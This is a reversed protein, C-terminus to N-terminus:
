DVAPPLLLGVEPSKWPLKAVITKCQLLTPTFPYIRLVSNDCLNDNWQFKWNIDRTNGETDFSSVEISNRVVRAIFLSENHGVIGLNCTHPYREKRYFKRDLYLSTLKEWTTEGLGWVILEGRKVGHVLCLRGQWELLSCSYGLIGYPMPIIRFEENEMNFSLVNHEEMQYLINGVSLFRGPYVLGWLGPTVTKWVGTESSFMCLWRTMFVAHWCWVIVKFNYSIPDFYFGQIDYELTPIRPVVIHEQSIPNCVIVDKSDDDTGYCFMGQSCLFQKVGEQIRPLDIKRLPVKAHPVNAARLFFSGVSLSVIAFTESPMKLSLHHKEAFDSSSLNEGWTKCVIKFRCIDEASLGMLIKLIPDNPLEPLPQVVADMVLSANAIWAARHTRVESRTRPARPEINASSDDHPQKRKRSSVKKAM